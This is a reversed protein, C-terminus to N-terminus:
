ILLKCFVLGEVDVGEIFAVLARGVPFNAGSGTCCSRAGSTTGGHVIRRPRDRCVGARGTDSPRRRAHMAMRDTTSTKPPSLAALAGPLVLVIRRCRGGPRRSGSVGSCQLAGVGGASLVPSVDPISVVPERVLGRRTRSATVTSTPPVPSVDPISVM